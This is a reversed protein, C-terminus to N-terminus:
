GDSFMKFNTFASNAIGPLASGWVASAAAGPSVMAGKIPKPGFDYSQLMPPFIYKSTPTAIPEPPKPTAGPKLMKQAEANLDAITRALRIKRVARQSEATANDYSLSLLTMKTGAQLAEVSARKTATNGTQGLSRVRGEAILTEDLLNQAQYRNETDIEHLQQYEASIAEYEELENIKLQQKYNENSKKYMQKKLADEAEAIQLQYNYQLKNTTDKYEALKKENKAQNLIQDSAFNSQSILQKKKAKYSKLNYENQLETYENQLQAQEKAANASKNAGWLGVATGIGAVLWDVFNNEVGTTALKEQLMAKAPNASMNIDADTMPTGFNNMMM